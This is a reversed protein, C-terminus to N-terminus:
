RQGSDQAGSFKQHGPPAQRRAATRPLLVERYRSISRHDRDTRSAARQRNPSRDKECGKGRRFFFIIDALSEESEYNVIDAASRGTKRMRMDLPGENSFSFGRPAQDLQMSSVGLDFVVGDLPLHRSVKELADFEGFEGLVFEFRSDLNLANARAEAEPDCDVGFVREAGGRLLASSYGGAGFTGDLWTGEVPSAVSLFENLLVPLHTSAAINNPNCAM